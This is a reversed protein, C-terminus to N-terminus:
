GKFHTDLVKKMGSQSATRAIKDAVERENFVDKLWNAFDNREERVHYFFVTDDMEPLLAILEAVNKIERGDCLFFNKSKCDPEKYATHKFATAKKPTAKKTAM